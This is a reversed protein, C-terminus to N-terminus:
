PWTRQGRERHSSQGGGSRPSRPRGPPYRAAAPRPQGARAQGRRRWPRRHPALPADVLAGDLRRLVHSLTAACPPKARTCGLARVLKQGNCRGWDAMARDSRYDCRMAVCMVALMAGLPHRRGGPDRPAPIDHVSAVLPRSAPAM